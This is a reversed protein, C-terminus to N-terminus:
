RGPCVSGLSRCKASLSGAAVSAGPGLPAPLSRRSGMHPSQRDRGSPRGGGAECQGRVTAQQGLGRGAEERKMLRRTAARPLVCPDPLPAPIPKSKEPRPAGPWSVRAEEWGLYEAERACVPTTSPTGHQWAGRQGPAEAPGVSPGLLPSSFAVAAGRRGQLFDGRKIIGLGIPTLSPTGATM